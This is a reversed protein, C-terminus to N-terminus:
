VENTILEVHICRAQESRLAILSDRVRYAMPDGMPSSVEARISTGPLMGLDMLRRREQGRLRPSLSLVKAEQGRQLQDLPIGEQIVEEPHENIIAVNISAAVIPALTHEEGNTWFRVRQKSNEMMRVFMGPLLGEAEIQAAVAEPEDGVHVIRAFQHPSLDTLNIRDHDWVMGERSPIPDGHPDYIPNGLAGALQDLEEPTFDHEIREAQAHWESQHYGTQEALYQEWLRHARIINMAVERGEDTLTLHNGERDILGSEEMEALVSVVRNADVELAGAVSQLSASRGTFDLKQIHKLADERLVRDTISRVERYRALLGKEPWFLLVGLAVIGIGILISILPDLM